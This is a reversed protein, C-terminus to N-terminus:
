PPTAAPEQVDSGRKESQSIIQGALAGGCRSNKLDGISCPLFWSRSTPSHVTTRRRWATASWRRGSRAVRPVRREPDFLDDDASIPVTRSQANGAPTKGVVSLIVPVLFEFFDRMEHAPELRGAREPELQQFAALVEDRRVLGTASSSVVSNPLRARSIATMARELRPRRRGEDNRCIWFFLEALAQRGVWIADSVSDEVARGVLMRGGCSSCPAVVRARASACRSAQRLRGSASDVAAVGYGSVQLGGMEPM